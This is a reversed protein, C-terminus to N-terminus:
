RRTNFNAVAFNHTQGSPCSVKRELRDIHENVEQLDVATLTRSGAETTYSFSKGGALMRRAEYWLQLEARAEERTQVSVESVM